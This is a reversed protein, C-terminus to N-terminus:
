HYTICFNHYLLGFRTLQSIFVTVLFVLDKFIKTIRSIFSCRYDDVMAVSLDPKQTEIHQFISAGMITYLVVLAGVGVKPPFLCTFVWRFSLFQFVWWFALCKFVRRFILCKLVWRFALGPHLRIRRNKPLLREVNQGKRGILSRSFLGTLSVLLWWPRM